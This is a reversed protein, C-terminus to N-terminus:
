AVAGRAETDYDTAWEGADSWENSSKEFNRRIHARM